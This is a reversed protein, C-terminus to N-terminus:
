PKEEATEKLASLWETDAETLKESSYMKAMWPGDMSEKMTLLTQNNAAPELEWVHIAKATWATGTWALRHEPEFLHVQSHIAMGGTRWSFRAGDALPQAPTVSEIQKQWAPWSPANVLLAWVKAPPAAIQIQLSATVPATDHISGTSALRNLTALSDGCGELTVICSLLLAAGLWKRM